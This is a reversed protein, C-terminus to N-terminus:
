YYCESKERRDAIRWMKEFFHSRNSASDLRLWPSATLENGKSLEQNWRLLLNETVNLKSVDLAPHLSCFERVKAKSVKSKDFVCHSSIAPLMFTSDKFCFWGSLSLCFFLLLSVVNLLSRASRSRYHLLRAPVFSPISEDSCCWRSKVDDEDEDGVEDVDEDEEAEDDKDNKKKEQLALVLNNSASNFVQFVTFM